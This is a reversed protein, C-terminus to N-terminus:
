DDGEEIFHLNRRIYGAPLPYFNFNQYLPQTLNRVIRVLHNNIDGSEFSLSTTVSDNQAIATEPVAIRDRWWSYRFLRRNQLGKWTIQVDVPVSEDCIAFSFREVHKLCEGVRWIPLSVEFGAGAEIEPLEDSQYGRALFLSGDLSARWLDSHGPGGWFGEAGLWCELNDGHVYPRIAERGPVWWPPWGTENGQVRGLILALRDLDEIEFNGRVQYAFTWFGFRFPSVELQDLLERLRLEGATMWGALDNGNPM